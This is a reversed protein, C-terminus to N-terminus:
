QYVYQASVNVYSNRSISPNFPEPEPTHYGSNQSGRADQASYINGPQHPDKGRNPYSNNRDIRKGERYPLSPQFFQNKHPLAEYFQPHTNQEAAVLTQFSKFAKYGVKLDHEKDMQLKADLVLIYAKAKKFAKYLSQALEARYEIMRLCLDPDRLGFIFKTITDKLIHQEVRNLIVTNEGDHTVRDRGAIRTLLVETCCYYTYLDKDEKQTLSALETSAREETIM